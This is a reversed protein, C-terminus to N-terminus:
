CHKHLKVVFPRTWFDVRGSNLFISRSAEWLSVASGHRYMKEKRQSPEICLRLTQGGGGKGCACVRTHETVPDRHDIKRRKVPGAIHKRNPRSLTHSCFSPFRDTASCLLLLFPLLRFIFTLLRLTKPITSVHCYCLFPLPSLIAEPDPRSTSPQLWRQMTLWWLPSRFEYGWSLHPILSKGPVGHM